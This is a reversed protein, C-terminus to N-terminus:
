ALKAIVEKRLRKLLSSAALLPKGILRYRWAHSLHALYARYPYSRPSVVPTGRQSLVMYSGKSRRCDLVKFGEQELLYTLSEPTPYWTHVYGPHGTNLTSLLDSLVVLFLGGDDLMEWIQKVFRRPESIFYIAHAISVIDFRSLTDINEVQGITTRIGLREHFVKANPDADIGEAQWGNKQFLAVTEGLGCAVDLFRRTDFQVFPMVFDYSRQAWAQSVSQRRLWVEETVAAETEDVRNKNWYAQMEALTSETSPYANGCNRCLRWHYGNNRRVVKGTEHDLFPIVWSANHSCIPCTPENGHSIPMTM